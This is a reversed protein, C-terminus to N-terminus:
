APCYCMTYMVHHLYETSRLMNIVICAEVETLHTANTEVMKLNPYDNVNIWGFEDHNMQFYSRADTRFDDKFIVHDAEM